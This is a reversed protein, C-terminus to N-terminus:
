VGQRWQICQVLSSYICCMGCLNTKKLSMVLLFVQLSLKLRILTMKESSSDRATERDAQFVWDQWLKNPMFM